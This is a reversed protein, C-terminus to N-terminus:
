IQIIQVQFIQFQKPNLGARLTQACAIASVYQSQPNSFNENHTLSTLKVTTTISALQGYLPVM